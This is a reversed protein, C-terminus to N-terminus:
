TINKEELPLQINVTTGINETSEIIIKGNNKEVFEKCLLLGLGSGTEGGTGNRIHKQNINFIKSLDDENIGIGNDKVSLNLINDKKNLSVSIVSDPNSFKISNSLVNRIVTDIMNRDAFVNFSSTENFEIKIKKDSANSQSLNIIENILETVNFLEPNFKISGTQTQAWKLLNDLLRYVKQASDNLMRTISLKEENSLQDNDVILVDTLGLISHFPSRLDHSIISFFTNKTDNAVQLENAYKILEEQQSSIENNLKKLEKSKKISNTLYVITIVVTSILIIVIWRILTNIKNNRYITQKYESITNEKQKLKIRNEDDTVKQLQTMTNLKMSLSDSIKLYKLSNEVDRAKLYARILYLAATQMYAEIKMKKAMEFSLEGYKIANNYDGKASYAQCINFLVYPLDIPSYKEFIDKVSLINELAEDHKFLRSYSSGIIIKNDAYLLPYTNKNIFENSKQAYEVAYDYRNLEYYIAALRNNIKALNLKDNKSLIDELNYLYELAINLKGISRMIDAVEITLEIIKPVNRSVLSYLYAKYINELAETNKYSYKLIKAKLQYSELILPYNDTNLSNHIAFQAFQEAIDLDISFYKNAFDLQQRAIIEYNNESAKSTQISFLFSFNLLLLCSFLFAFVANLKKHM